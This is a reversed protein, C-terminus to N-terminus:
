SIERGEPISPSQPATSGRSDMYSEDISGSRSNTVVKTQSHYIIHFKNRAIFNKQNM